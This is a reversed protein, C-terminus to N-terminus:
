ARFGLPLMMVACVVGSVLNASLLEAGTGLEVFVWM